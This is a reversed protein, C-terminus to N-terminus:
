ELYEVRVGHEKAYKEANSGPHCVFTLQDNIIFNSDLDKMNIEDEGLDPNIIEMPFACEGITTDSNLITVRELSTCLGFCSEGISRVSSPITIEKLEYCESFAGREIVQLGEPLQIETIEGNMFANFGISQLRSGKEFRIEALESAMFSWEGIETVNKPITISVGSMITNAFLGNLTRADTPLYIHRADSVWANLSNCVDCLVRGSETMCFFPEGYLRIMEQDTLKGSDVRNQLLELSAANGGLFMWRDDDYEKVTIGLEQLRTWAYSNKECYVTLDQSCGRFADPDIYDIVEMWKQPNQNPLILTKLNKCQSFADAQIQYNQYETGFHADTAFYDFYVKTLLEGCRTGTINGQEDTVICPFGDPFGEQEAREWEVNGAIALQKQNDLLAIVCLILMSVVLFLIRGRIRKMVRGLTKKKEM